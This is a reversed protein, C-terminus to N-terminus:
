NARRVGFLYDARTGVGSLANAKALSTALRALSSWRVWRYALGCKEYTEFFRISYAVAVPGSFAARHTM